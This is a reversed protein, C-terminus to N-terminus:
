FQVKFFDAAFKKKHVYDADDGSVIWLYDYKKYSKRSIWWIMEVFLFSKIELFDTTLRFALVSDLKFDSTLM